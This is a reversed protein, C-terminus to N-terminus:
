PHLGAKRGRGDPGPFRRAGRGGHQQHAPVVLIRNQAPQHALPHLGRAQGGRHLRDRGGHVDGQRFGPHLVKHREGALDERRAGLRHEDQLQFPEGRNDPEDLYPELFFSTHNGFCGDIYLKLSEGLKLREDSEMEGLKKWWLLTERLKPQDEFDVPDVYFTGRARVDDLGGAERFELVLPMLSKYVQLEDFATVGARVTGDIAKGLTEFMRSKIDPGFEEMSFFQFPDFSHAHLFMGTPKGDEDLEPVLHKWTSPDKEFMLDAMKRNPWGTTAEYSWLFVPRDELIEDCMAVDPMNGPMYDYMWGIGFILPLDPNEEAFARVSRRVDDMSKCDYLDLLFARLLGMWLIHVHADIFGPALMRGRANIVRTDPGIFDAAGKNDGVYVFRGDKVARARARTGAEDCTLVRAGLVVMDAPDSGNRRYRPKLYFGPSNWGSM